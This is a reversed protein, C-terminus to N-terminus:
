VRIIITPMCFLISRSSFFYIPILSYADQVNSRRTHCLIQIVMALMALEIFDM